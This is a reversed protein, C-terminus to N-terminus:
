NCLRKLVSPYPTPTTYCYLYLKPNFKQGSHWFHQLSRETSYADNKYSTNISVNLQQAHKKYERAKSQLFGAQKAKRILEPGQYKAQEELSVLSRASLFFILSFLIKRFYIM